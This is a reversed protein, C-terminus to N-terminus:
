IPRALIRIQLAARPALAISGFAAIKKASMMAANKNM